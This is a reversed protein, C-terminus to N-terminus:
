ESIIELICYNIIIEVNPIIVGYQSASKDVFVLCSILLPPSLQKYRTNEIIFGAMVM